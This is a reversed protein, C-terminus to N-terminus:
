EGGVKEDETQDNAYVDNIKVQEQLQDKIFQLKNELDKNNSSQSSKISPELIREIMKEYGKM